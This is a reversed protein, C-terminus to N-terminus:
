AEEAYRRAASCFEEWADRTSVMYSWQSARIHRDLTAKAGPTSPAHLGMPIREAIHHWAGEVKQCAVKGARMRAQGEEEQGPVFVPVKCPRVYKKQSHSVSLHQLVGPPQYEAYGPAGDSYLLVNAGEPLARDGIRKWQEKSIEPVRPNRGVSFTGFEELPEMYTMTERGRQAVMVWPYWHWTTCEPTEGKEHWKKFNKEDVECDVTFPDERGFALLSQRRVADWAMVDQAKAYFAALAKESVGLLRQAAGLSVGDVCCRFAFIRFSISLNGHGVVDFLPHAHSPLFTRKCVGCCHSATGLFIDAGETKSVLEGVVGICGATPCSTGTLDPFLRVEHALGALGAPSARALDILTQSHAARGRQSARPPSRQRLPTYRDAAVAQAASRENPNHVALAHSPVAAALPCSSRNHGILGCIGCHKRESSAYVEDPPPRAQGRSRAVANASLSREPVPAGLALLAQKLQPRSDLKFHPSCLYNDIYARGEEMAYVEPLSMRFYEGFDFVYSDGSQVNSVPRERDRTVGSGAAAMAFRPQAPPVMGQKGFRALHLREAAVLLETHHGTDSKHRVGDLRLCPPQCGFCWRERGTLDRGREVPEEEDSSTM